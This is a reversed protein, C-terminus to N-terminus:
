LKMHAQKETMARVRTPGLLNLSINSFLPSNTLTREVALQGIRQETVKVKKIRCVSCTNVVPCRLKRGGHRWAQSHSRALMTISGDHSEENTAMTLLETLRQHSMLFQLAQIGFIKPHGKRM